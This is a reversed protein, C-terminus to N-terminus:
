PRQTCERFARRLEEETPKRGPPLKSRICQATPLDDIGPGDLIVFFPEVIWSFDRSKGLRDAVSLIATRDSVGQQRLVAELDKGELLAEAWDTAIEYAITSMALETPLRERIALAEWRAAVLDALPLAGPQAVMKPEPAAVEPVVGPSSRTTTRNTAVLAEVSIRQAAEFGGAGTARRRCGTMPQVTSQNFRTALGTLKISVFDAIQGGYEIPRGNITIDGVTYGKDPPVEYVARVCKGRQGRVYKWFSKPDTGDPTQWGTTLLDNFYLGVPDELTVDAKQRTLSNVQEGIHPDSHREAGGYKGCDVLERAETLFRGGIKRVVSSGAALEIEASLSNNVQILHMAGGTTTSNWRNRPNYVGAANYLDERRVDPSVFERYLQLAVDPAANALFEWYEPGECTFTVRTIKNTAPDRTVSWECYEDQVDRSGDARRWRQRDSVSTVSVNRPFGTWSIDLSTVDDDVDVTAPNFFQERPGDFDFVDPRGARAADFQDSIWDSWAEKLDSNLDDLFGPPSFKSITM